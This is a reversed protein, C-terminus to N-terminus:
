TDNLNLVHHKIYKDFITISLEMEVALINEKGTQRLYLVISQMFMLAVFNNHVTHINIISYIDVDVWYSYHGVLNSATNTLTEILQM